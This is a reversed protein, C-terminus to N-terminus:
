SDFHAQAKLNNLMSVMDGLDMVEDNNYSFDICSNDSGMCDGAPSRFLDKEIAKYEEKKLQKLVRELIEITHEKLADHQTQALTEPTTKLLEQINM